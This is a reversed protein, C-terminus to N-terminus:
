DQKSGTEDKPFAEQTQRIFDDILEQAAVPRSFKLEALVEELPYAAQRSLKSVIGNMEKVEATQEKQFQILDAQSFPVLSRSVVTDGDINNQIKVHPVYTLAEAVAYSGDPNRQQTTVQVVCGTRHIEMAKTSKMWGENESSAKSILKFTDGDGWFQIDKVNKRAGNATTNHLSKVPTAEEIQPKKFAMSDQLVKVERLRDLEWGLWMKANQIKMWSQHYFVGSNKVHIVRDQAYADILSQINQRFGKITEVLKEWTNVEFAPTAATKEAQEDIITNAPNSSNKYPNEENLEGLVKGLWHKAEQMNTIVLAIERSKPISQLLRFQHDVKLRLNKVFEPNINIFEKAQTNEM